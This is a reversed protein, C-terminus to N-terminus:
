AGHLDIERISDADLGLCNSGTERVDVFVNEAENFTIFVADGDLFPEVRHALASEPREVFEVGLKALLAANRRNCLHMQDLDGLRGLAIDTGRMRPPTLITGGFLGVSPVAVDVPGDLRKTRHGFPAGDRRFCM